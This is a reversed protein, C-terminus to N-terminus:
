VTGEKALLHSERRAVAQDRGEPAIRSIASVTKAKQSFQLKIATSLVAWIHVRDQALKIWNMVGYGSARYPVVFV